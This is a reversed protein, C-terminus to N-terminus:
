GRTPTLIDIVSHFRNAMEGELLNFMGKHNDKDQVWFPIWFESAQLSSGDHWCPCGLLWCKDQSPADGRMYDPAARYHIEIGGNHREGYKKEYEEGSDVIHVHLGGWEGVCSWTHRDGFSDTTFEYKCRYKPERDSM